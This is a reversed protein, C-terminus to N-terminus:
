FKIGVELRRQQHSLEKSLDTCRAVAKKHLEIAWDNRREVDVSNGADAEKRNKVSGSFKSRPPLSHREFANRVLKRISSSSSRFKLYDIHFTKKNFMELPPM